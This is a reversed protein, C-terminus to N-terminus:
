TDMKHSFCSWYFQGYSKMEDLLPIVLETKGAHYTVDCSFNLLHLVNYSLIYISYLGYSINGLFV